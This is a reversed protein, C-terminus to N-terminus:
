WWLAAGEATQAERDDVGRPRDQARDLAPACRCSM